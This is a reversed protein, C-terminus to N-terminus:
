DPGAPAVSGEDTYSALAVARAIAARMADESFGMTLADLAEGTDHDVILAFGTAGKNADYLAELGFRAAKERIEDRPGFTFDLDVFAVPAGAFKPAVSALKPELIKCAACWASAFTAVVIEPKGDYVSVSKAPARGILAFGAIAAAALAFYGVPRM